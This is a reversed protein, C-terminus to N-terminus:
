DLDYIIYTAWNSGPAEFAQLGEEICERGWATEQQFTYGCPDLGRKVVVHVAVVAIDAPVPSLKSLDAQFYDYVSSPSYGRKISFKGPVPTGTRNQAIGEPSAAVDIHCELMEWGDQLIVEIGLINGTQKLAVCGASINQGAVLSYWTKGDGDETAAEVFTVPSNIVAVAVLLMVFAAIIKKSKFM